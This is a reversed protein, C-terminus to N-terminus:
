LIRNNKSLLKSTVNMFRPHVSYRCHPRHIYKIFCNKSLYALVKPPYLLSDNRSIGHSSTLKLIFDEAMPINNFARYIERIFDIPRGQRLKPYNVQQRLVELFQNAILTAQQESYEIMNLFESEQQTTYRRNETLSENNRYIHEIEVRIKKNTKAYIKLREGTRLECRLGIVADSSEIRLNEYFAILSTNTIARFGEELEKVADISNEHNLDWYNEIKRLSYYPEFRILRFDSINFESIEEDIYNIIGELYKNRLHRYYRESGNVQAISSLLVNDNQDLSYEGEHAIKDQIAFLKPHQGPSNRKRLGINQYVCFRTPNISLQLKLSFTTSNIRKIILQGSFLPAVNNGYRSSLIKITKKYTVPDLSSNVQFARNPNISNSRDRGLFIIFDSIRPDEAYIIWEGLHIDIKDQRVDSINLPTRLDFDTM